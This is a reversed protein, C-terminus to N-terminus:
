NNLEYVLLYDPDFKKSCVGCSVRNKPKRHRYATHGNPCTAKWKGEIKVDNGCREGNCGIEIAKARWVNNHANKWGVIAHAIEHLITNRVNEEDRLETLASSLTIKKHRYNCSGLRRKARDFEFYWGKDMLGHEDLLLIALNKAKLLEM